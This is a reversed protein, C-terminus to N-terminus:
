IRNLFFKTHFQSSFINSVFSYKSQANHIALGVLMEVPFAIPLVALVGASSAGKDEYAKCFLCHFIRVGWLPEYGEIAPFINSSGVALLIKRFSWEKGNADIVSFSSDGKKDIKDIQVDQSEITSYQSSIAERSQRRFEAPNKGELGPVMHMSNARQNRYVRSDFVVATHLQRALTAAAALGAPGGGIIAVDYTFAM